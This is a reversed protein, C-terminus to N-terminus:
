LPPLIAAASMQMFANIEDAVDGGNNTRQMLIVGVMDKAPDVWGYTRWAGGHGYTGISNLRFMGELNRVIGWGLGWGVGPAFGAPLDGTHVQTIAHVTEPSLIRRSDLEGGNLMMQYFRAMDTATSYLGGEPAPYKTRQDNPKLEARELVGRNDTYVAAIRSRKEEPVFFSTDRMGLPRLIRSEIFREYPEGSVVEIIRGLAAMGANSYQWKTGPQFLLGQRAEIAVVEALTRGSRGREDQLAPGGGLYGSTHTLLDRINIPRSPAAYTCTPGAAAPTCNVAVKQGKFEPLFKEVPDILALKGEEVLIMVGVSTVPKTMSHIAFITGTTMPTKAERDQWGVASLLAPEGHRMLLTVVGATKGQDVFEQMRRPIRALREPDMGPGAAFAHLAALVILAPAITHLSRPM